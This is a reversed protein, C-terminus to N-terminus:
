WSEGLLDNMRWMRSSAGFGTNIQKSTITDSDGSGGSFDPYRTNAYSDNEVRLEGRFPPTGTTWTPTGLLRDEDSSWVSLLLV